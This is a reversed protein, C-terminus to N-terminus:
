ATGPSSSRIEAQNRGKSPFASSLAPVYAYSVGSSTGGATTVTVQATGTGTPTVATIQTPSDVTFSTAPTAGFSVATAGTM